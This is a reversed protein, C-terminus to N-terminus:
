PSGTLPPLRFVLPASLPRLVECVGRRRGFILCFPRPVTPACPALALLQHVPPGPSLRELNWTLEAVRGHTGAGGPVGPM